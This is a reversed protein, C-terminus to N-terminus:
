LCNNTFTMSASLLSIDQILQSRLNIIAMNLKSRMSKKWSRKIFKLTMTKLTVVKEVILDRTM